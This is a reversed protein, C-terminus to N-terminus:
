KYNFQIFPFGHLAFLESEVKLRCKSCDFCDYIHLMWQSIAMKVCGVIAVAGAVAVVGAGAIIIIKRM